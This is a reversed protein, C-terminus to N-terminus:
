HNKKEPKNSITGTCKLSILYILIVNMQQSFQLFISFLKNQDKSAELKKKM